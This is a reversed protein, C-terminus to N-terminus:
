RRPMCRARSGAATVCIFTFSPRTFRPRKLQKLPRARTCSGPRRSRSCCCGRGPMSFALVAGSCAPRRVSKGFLLYPIVQLYVSVGLNYQGGNNFYTPLYEDGSSFDDRVLEAARVTQVAEDTFFYIPFADLEIVRVLLYIALAAALLVGGANARARAKWAAGFREPRPRPPEAPQEREVRVRVDLRVGGPLRAKVKVPPYDAEYPKPPESTTM